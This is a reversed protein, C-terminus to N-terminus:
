TIIDDLPIVWTAAYACHRSHIIGSIGGSPILIVKVLLFMYTKM